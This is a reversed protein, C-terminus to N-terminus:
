ASRRFGRQPAEKGSEAAERFVMLWDRAADRWNRQWLLSKAAQQRALIGKRDDRIQLIADAIAQPDYPDFYIMADGLSRCQEILSPINSCAVPCGWYLAEYIPFSGQEYLSPVITAFANQYLAALARRDVCGLVHVRDTLNLDKIKRAVTKPLDHIGTFVLDLSNAAGSHLVHLAEILASHNKYTRFAAPYFLYPRKMQVPMLRAGECHTIEPFDAPPAPPILRIKEAPLHLIGRLDVDRIYDSM